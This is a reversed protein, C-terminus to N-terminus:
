LKRVFIGANGQNGALSKILIEAKYPTGAQWQSVTVKVISPSGEKVTSGFDASASLEERKFIQLAGAQLQVGDTIPVIAIEYEGDSAIKGTFDVTVKHEQNEKLSAYTVKKVFTGYPAFASLDEEFYSPVSHHTKSLAAIARFDSLQRVQVPGTYIPDYTTPHEGNTTYHIQAGALDSSAEIRYANGTKESRIDPTPIRYNYGGYDLRKYHTLLRQSFNEFNRQSGPTWAVESLALLRPLMLYEIYQESRDENLLGIEQLVTGHIFQDSWMCAQIGLVADTQEFKDMEFRYCKEVSIAPRWTAAKIEGPLRSEPFDFYTFDAPALVAKHGLEFVHSINKMDRWVMSVVPYKIKGRELIEDWGVITRGYQHAMEAVVNTLYGQLEASKSLGNEKVVKQCDACTDWYKYVAEDGGVHIYKAPFLECTERLVDTLFDISSQKGVCLLDKSIYHQVPVEQQEGRCSLWPYAVVASLIHAPFEIEPVIEVGRVQAYRVMERIEDQTYYGGTRETGKGRFSGVSTLLPYKKIELRWGSDDVLHFHLTNMKYKAMMDIFRLVYEKPFFYRSVDLMVGRWAFQPEDAISVYPLSLDFKSLRDSEIQPPLLQLLTQIAYFAGAPTQCRIDVGRGDIQLTYGEPHTISKDIQLSIGGKTTKKSEKMPLELGTPPYLYEQLFRAQEKLEPAYVIDTKPGIAFQKKSEAIVSRPQPILKMEEASACISLLLLAIMAGWQRKPIM